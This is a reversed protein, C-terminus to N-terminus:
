QHSSAVHLRVTTFQRSLYDLLAYIFVVLGVMELSEEVTVIAHYIPNHEGHRSAQAGSLAEVGLAGGVYIAGAVLFLRRSRAPLAALFRLYSLGFLAVGVGAPVIWAYYLLGTAHFRDRLPAISLEHLQATEDLSLLLFILALALWHGFYGDRRQRQAAAIIGLLLSCLLLLSASYWSPINCEEDVWTLRVVTDRVHSLVPNDISVFSLYSAGVSAAVLLAVVLGLAATWRKPSVQLEIDM